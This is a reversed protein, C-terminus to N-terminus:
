DAMLRRCRYFDDDDISSVLHAIGVNRAHGAGQKDEAVIVEYTSKVADLYAKATVISRDTSMNDVLVLSVEYDGSQSCVSTLCREIQTEKNFVPIIVFIKSTM